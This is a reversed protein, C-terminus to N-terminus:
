LLLPRHRTPSSLRLKLHPLTSASTETGRPFLLCPGCTNHCIQGLLAPLFSKLIAEELPDFLHGIDSTTRMLFLWKKSLGVSYGSFACQPESLAIASLLEVQSCWEDVKESVFTAKFDATGIPSGLYRVGDVTIVVGTGDFTEQALSLHQPKVLLVSKAGNPYYGYGPGRECLKDWWRKLNVM